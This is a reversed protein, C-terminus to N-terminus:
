VSDEGRGQDVHRSKIGIYSFVQPYIAMCGGLLVLFFLWLRTVLQGGGKKKVDLLIGYNLMCAGQPMLKVKPERNRSYPFFNINMVYVSLPIVQM